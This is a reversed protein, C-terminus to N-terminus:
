CRGTAGCVFCDVDVVKGGAIDVLVVFAVEDDGVANSNCYSEDAGGNSQGSSKGISDIM